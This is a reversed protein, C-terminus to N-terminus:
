EFTLAEQLITQIAPVNPLLVSAGLPTTWSTTENPGIIFRRVDEESNINRAFRSMPLIQDPNINSEVENDFIRMLEPLKLLGAPTRAKDFIAKSVEQNRRM